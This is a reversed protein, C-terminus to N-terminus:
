DIMLRIRVIVGVVGDAESILELPVNATGDDCSNRWHVLLSFLCGINYLVQVRHYPKLSLPFDTGLPVRCM